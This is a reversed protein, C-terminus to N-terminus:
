RRSAAERLAKVLYTSFGYAFRARSNLPRRWWDLAAELMYM